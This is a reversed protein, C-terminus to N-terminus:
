TRAAGVVLESPLEFGGPGDFRRLAERVEDWVAERKDEGVSELMQHLAPIADQQFRVCEDASSLCLSAEIRRTVAETFGAQDFAAEMAGPSGLSFPGPQGQEPAPLGAQRRIISMPISFFPNREPSTFGAVVVRGGSRLVRHVEVLARERNPFFILGLRSLVVDFSQDALQLQEGDMVRTEFRKSALGREQAARAAIALMNSSIDIALVYGTPGVLPVVSLAPEGMGSAVDLVRDGPGIQALDLM